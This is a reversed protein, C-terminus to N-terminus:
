NIISAKSVKRQVATIENGFISDVKFGCNQM